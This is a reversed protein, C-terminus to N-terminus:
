SGILADITNPSASYKLQCNVHKMAKSTGSIAIMIFLNPLFILRALRAAIRDEEVRNPWISPVSTPMRTTFPKLASFNSRRRYVFIRSLRTASSTLILRTSAMLEGTISDIMM